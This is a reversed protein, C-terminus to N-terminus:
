QGRRELMQRNAPRSLFQAINEPTVAYGHERLVAAAAEDLGARAGPGAGRGRGTTIPTAGPRAAPTTKVPSQGVPPRPAPLTLPPQGGGAAGPASADGTLLDSLWSSGTPEEYVPLDLGALESKRLWQQRPKGDPGPVVVRVLEDDPAQERRPNGAAAGAARAEAEARIQDISKPAPAAPKVFVENPDGLTSEDRFVTAARTPDNPDAVDIARLRKEPPAKIEKVMEAIDLQLRARDLEHRERDRDSAGLRAAHLEQDRQEDRARRQREDLLELGGIAGRAGGAIGAIVDGWAM